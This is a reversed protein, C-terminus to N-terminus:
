KKTFYARLFRTRAWDSPLVVGKLNASIGATSEEFYPVIIAGRQIMIEQAKKYLIIRKAKDMESDIKKVIADFEPDSWHSENWPASSIYALKFYTVPTARAGWDTIGFDSKLWSQDGDGYYIDSPIVKIGVNIGIKAMQAKWVIAINPVDSENQAYLTIKFGNPYGADALLQKARKLDPVPPKDLYYDKYAPGVPTFGNGPVALGPRVAQIIANHDTALKMAERIRNDSAIHGKDARMHLVWHMNSVNTLLNLSPDKKVMDVFQTNLGGVFQLQGGRLAEIKGQLGPSFIFQVEDVYPLPKSDDGKAWYYPNPKMIIRDEPVYKAIVFAGSFIWKKAPNKIDKSIIGAHYDGADSPFEPNPNKLIFQVHTADLAKIDSINKYLSVTPAGIKPDRMRNFTYVVDEATLDEGNSFKLNPRLTFTWVKGDSSSWKVALDPAPKNDADIFTLGDYLQQSVMIDSIATAFQPDLNSVPQIGVKIVGGRKTKVPAAAKTGAPKAKEKTGGASVFQVSLFLAAALIAVMFRKM